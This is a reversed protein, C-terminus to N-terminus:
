EDEVHLALRSVKTSSFASVARAHLQARHKEVAADAGTPVASDFVTDAHGLAADHAGALASEDMPLSVSADMAAAYADWGAAVARACQVAAASEWADAISPMGGGNIADVYSRALQM